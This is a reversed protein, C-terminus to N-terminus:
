SEITSLHVDAGKTFTTSSEHTSTMQPIQAHYYEYIYAQTIGFHPQKTIKILSKSSELCLESTSATTM